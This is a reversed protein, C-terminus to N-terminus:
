EVAESGPIRGIEGCVTVIAGNPGGGSFGILAGQWAVVQDEPDFLVGRGFVERAAYGFPWVVGWERGTSSHIGLGTREVRELTGSAFVTSCGDRPESRAELALASGAWPDVGCSTFSRGSEDLSGGGSRIPDGERAVIRGSADVLVALRGERHASYGYPWSVDVVDGSGDIWGLGTRPNEALIGGGLAEMCGTDPESRTALQISGEVPSPTATPPGATPPPPDTAPEPTAEEVFIAIEVKLDFAWDGGEDEEAHGLAQATLHWTGAPLRLIPDELWAGFEAADPHNRPFGGSKKFSEVLPIGRQLTTQEECICAPMVGEANIEGFVKERIGFLVPGTFKNHLFQVREEPGSYVLSAFVDIPDGARYHSRGSSITLEFDGDRDSATVPGDTASPATSDPGTPTRSDPAGTRPGLQAIGAILLGGVVLALVPAWGALGLRASSGDRVGGPTVPAVEGAPSVPVSAALSELRRRLSVDFDDTM